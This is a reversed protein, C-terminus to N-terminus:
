ARCRTMFYPWYIGREQISEMVVVKFDKIRMADNITVLLSRGTLFKIFVICSSFSRRFEWRRDANLGLIHDVPRNQYLPPYRPLPPASYEQAEGSVEEIGLDKLPSSSRSRDRQAASRDGLEDKLPSPSRSRDRQAASRDGLEGRWKQESVPMNLALKSIYENDDVEDESSENLDGMGIRPSKSSAMDYDPQALSDAALGLNVSTNHM